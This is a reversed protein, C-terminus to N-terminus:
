QAFESLTNRDATALIPIASVIGIPLAVIFLVLFAAALNRSLAGFYSISLTEAYYVAPLAVSLALEATIPLWEAAASGSAWLFVDILQFFPSSLLMLGYGAVTAAMVGSPQTRFGLIRNWVFLTIPFTIVSILFSIAFAVAVEIAVMGPGSFSFLEPDVERQLRIWTSVAMALAAVLSALIVVTWMKDIGHATRAAQRPSIVCDLLFQMFGQNSM